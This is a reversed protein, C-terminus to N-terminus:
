SKRPLRPLFASTSDIYAQYEPRRKTIGKESLGIGSVKLLFFTLLAPGLITWWAGAAVACLYIGWWICFEGFYNPHRSYRWLGKNMVGGKNKEHSQFAAMQLDAITEFALGFVAIALGLYDLLNLEAPSGVIGLLPM